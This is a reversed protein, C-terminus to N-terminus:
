CSVQGNIVLENDYLHMLSDTLSHTLSFAITCRPAPRPASQFLEPLM